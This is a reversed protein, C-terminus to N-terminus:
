SEGKKKKKKKTRQSWPDEWYQKLTWAGSVKSHMDLQKLWLPIALLLVAFAEAHTQQKLKVLAEVYTDAKRGTQCWSGGSSTQLMFVKYVVTARNNRVKAATTEGVPQIYGFMPSSKIGSQPSVLREPWRQQQQQPKYFVPKNTDIHNQVVWCQIIRQQWTKNQNIKRKQFGSVEFTVM